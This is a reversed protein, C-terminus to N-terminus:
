LSILLEVPERNRFLTLIEAIVNADSHYPAIRALVSILEVQHRRDIFCYRMAFNEAFEDIAEYMGSSIKFVPADPNIQITIGVPPTGKM